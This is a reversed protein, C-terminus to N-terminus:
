GLLSLVNQPIANAQALMATGAQQLIQSRTLEATEVAFDADQIRSRAASLNEVSTELNRITSEFRSQLAGFKARQNSVQAIAADVISLALNGGTVTSIDIDSVKQITSSNASSLMVATTAGTDKISFSKEADFTIQGVGISSQVAGDAALTVSGTGTTAGTGQGGTVTVAGANTFTTDNVSINSGEYHTLTIGSGDDKVTATVGTTSSKDNFAQAAAALSEVGTGASLDFTVTEVSTTNDGKLELQYSGAGTFSLDIDTQANAVVGTTDSVLNIATAVDKATDGASYAVTSTGDSGTVVVNGSASLRSTSGVSNHEGTIRYDGYQDTKFNSTTAVITQNANAGVQFLATGFSGDLLKQGNFETNKAIRNLEATLQGVELQLAKRDSSSNSANVSQVALERVRQLISGVEQLSGEATQALSIGDNANRSAVSLGRIQSTFRESIALGAADDKASNIRLGSSLRQLSTKLTGQSRNLNKQSNLSMVNTNIIQPM